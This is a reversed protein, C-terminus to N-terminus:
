LSAMQDLTSELVLWPDADSSKIRVDSAAFLVIIQAAQSKNLRAAFPAMKQLPYSSKAGTDAVVKSVDGDGYVLTALQLAQSSVLGLLRYPDETLRLTEILGRLRKADGSLATEFLVFVNESPNLEIVDDIWQDTVTEVLSLKDIAGALATQDVGGRDILRKIQGSSLQVNQESAYDNLWKVIKGSDREDIALFESVDANKKLWKYTSTRKDPKPEVLILQTDDSLRNAWVAMNQWLEGNTSPSDIIICRKLAFLTQGAFIDALQEVNLGAGDYRESEGDFDSRLQALKKTLEFDNEGCLLQIM